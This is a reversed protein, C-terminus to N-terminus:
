SGDSRVIDALRLLKSSISLNAASAAGANIEMRMRNDVLVLAIVGNRQAFDATEGVTLVNKGELAALVEDLRETESASVFLIQCSGVDEVREYREVAVRRGQLTAGRTVAALAAGIRDTGLVGIVFPADTSPCSAPPWTIFQGFNFLFAAKVQSERSADVQGAATDRQALCLLLALLTARRARRFGAAIGRSDVIRRRPALHRSM